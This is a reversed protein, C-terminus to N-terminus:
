GEMKTKRKEISNIFELWQELRDQSEAYNIPCLMCGFIWYGEIKEGHSKPCISALSVDVFSESSLITLMDVSMENLKESVDKPTYNDCLKGNGENLERHLSNVESSLTSVESLIKKLEDTIGHKKTPKTAECIYHRENNPLILTQKEIGQEMNNLINNFGDPVMNKPIEFSGPLIIGSSPKLNRSHHAYAKKNIENQIESLSLCNEIIDKSGEKLILLSKMQNYKKILEQELVWLEKWKKDM